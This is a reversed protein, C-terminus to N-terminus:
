NFQKIEKELSEFTFSQEYFKRKNKNYIVTAPIAGSWSSDVKSIWSNADPDNLFVIKSQLNKKKIFPLLNSEVQKSMDLSVLIVKIKRDKYETNLKEFNPLEAVCPMCWTAWFNVVYTTDNQFKLLKEFSIYDYSDVSIGGANYVKLPKPYKTESAETNKKCSIVLALSCILLIRKM